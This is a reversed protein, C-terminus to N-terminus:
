PSPADRVLFLQSLHTQEVQPLFPEPITTDKKLIYIASPFFYFVSFWIRRLSLLCVNFVPFDTNLFLEPKNKKRINSGGQSCWFENGLSATTDKDKCVNLVQVHGWAVRKLQSQKSCPHQVQCDRPAGELRLRDTIRHSSWTCMCITVASSFLAALMLPFVSFLSNTTSMKSGLVTMALFTAGHELGCELGPVTNNLDALIFRLPMSPIVSM